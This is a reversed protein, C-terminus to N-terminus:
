LPSVWALELAAERARRQTDQTKCVECLKTKWEGHSLKGHVVHGCALKFEYRDHGSSGHVQKSAIVVRHFPKM